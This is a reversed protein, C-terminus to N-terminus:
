SHRFRIEEYSLYRKSAVAIQVPQVTTDLFVRGSFAANRQPTLATEQRELSSATAEDLTSRVTGHHTYWYKPM